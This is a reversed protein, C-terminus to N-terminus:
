ESVLEEQTWISIWQSFSFHNRSNRQIVLNHIQFTLYFVGLTIMTIQGLWVIKSLWDGDSDLWCILVNGKFWTWWWLMADIFCHRKGGGTVRYTLWLNKQDLVAFRTELTHLPFSIEMKKWWQIILFYYIWKKWVCFHCPHFFPLFRKPYTNAISLLPWLLISHSSYFM